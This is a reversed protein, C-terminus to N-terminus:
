TYNFQMNNGEIQTRNSLYTLATVTNQDILQTNGIGFYM